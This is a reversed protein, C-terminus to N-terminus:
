YVSKLNSNESLRGKNIGIKIKWIKELGEYILHTKNKM